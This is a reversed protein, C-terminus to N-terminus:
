PEKPPNKIIKRWVWTMLYGFRQLRLWRNQGLGLNRSRCAHLTTSRLSPPVVLYVSQRNETHLCPTVIPLPIQIDVCSGCVIWVRVCVYSLWMVYGCTYIVCAYAYVLRVCVHIYVYIYIIYMYMYVHIHIHIHIQIQTYTYIHIHTYAYLIHIHMHIHIHVRILIHIYIYIYIFIYVHMDTHIFICKGTYTYTYTFTYTFAFAYAYTYTYMHSCTSLPLGSNGNAFAKV